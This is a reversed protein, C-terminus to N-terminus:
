ASGYIKQDIFIQHWLELMLLNWLHDHWKARGSVHEDILRRVVEPKFYGCDLARRSLLTEVALERLENCFWHDIPVSFGKKEWHIIEPPLIGMIAKKFLYKRVGCGVKFHPPISAMFEMLTHDVLPSRAELSHAMSAIDMKTLINDPLYMAVDVDLAEDVLDAADSAAFANLMPGLSDLAGVRTRFEETYLEAKIEDTFHSIWSGYHRRPDENLRGILQKGRQLIHWSDLSDPILRSTLFLRQRLWGPLLKSQQALQIAHYRSYGAFNEDGGDGNLAVTVHQRALEALYYAPLACSDAYPENYYWVLKPLIEVANPKV